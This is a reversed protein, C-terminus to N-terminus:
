GGEEPRAKSKFPDFTMAFYSDKNHNDATKFRLLGITTSIPIDDKTYLVHDLTNEQSTELTHKIERLMAQRTKPGMMFNLRADALFVDNREYRYFTTFENSVYVIPFSPISANVLM